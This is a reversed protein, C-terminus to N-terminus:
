WRVEYRLTQEMVLIDLLPVDFVARNGSFTGGQIATIPRPFDIVSRIRAAAIEDALPRTFISALLNVYDQASMNIGLAVPAMLAQLYNNIEPSLTSIIQPASARDLIIVIASGESSETFTIFQTAANPLALFDGVNSISISGELADNDMNRLTVDRVGPALVMSQAIAPGELIPANSAAGSFARLSHILAATRAGMATNLTFEAAGGEHVVGNIEATCSLFLILLPLM